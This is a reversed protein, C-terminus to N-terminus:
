YGTIAAGNSAPATWSVTIALNLTGDIMSIASEVPLAPADPVSAVFLTLVNSKSSEGNANSCTVQFSVPAGTTQSSLTFSTSYTDTITHTLYNGTLGVDYYVTFKTLPLGGKSQPSM